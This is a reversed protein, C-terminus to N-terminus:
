RPDVIRLNECEFSSCARAVTGVSVPHRPSVLIVSVHELVPPPDLLPEWLKPKRKGTLRRCMHTYSM